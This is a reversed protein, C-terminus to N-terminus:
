NSKNKKTKKNIPKKISTKVPPVLETWKAFSVKRRVPFMSGDKTFYVENIIVPKM